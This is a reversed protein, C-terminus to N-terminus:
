LEIHNDIHGAAYHEVHCSFVLAQHNRNSILGTLHSLIKERRVRDSNVLPDDLAFCLSSDGEDAIVRILALRYLLNLQERTGYSEWAFKIAPRGRRMLTEPFGDDNLTIRAGNGYLHGATNNMITQLVPYISEMKNSKLDQLCNQLLVIARTNMAELDLQEKALEFKEEIEAM